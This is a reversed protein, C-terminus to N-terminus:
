IFDDFTTEDPDEAPQTDFEAITKDFSDAELLESVTRSAFKQHFEEASESVPMRRLRGYKEYSAKAEKGVSSNWLVSEGELLPNVCGLELLQDFIAGRFSHYELIEPNMRQDGPERLLIWTFGDTVIGFETPSTRHRLYNRLEGIARRYHNLRKVECLVPEATNRIRLDVSGNYGEHYWETVYDYGVADCVPWVLYQSVFQEPDQGLESKGVEGKHGTLVTDIHGPVRDALEQCFSKLAAQVVTTFCNTRFYRIGQGILETIVNKHNQDTVDLTYIALLLGSGAFRDAQELSFVLEVPTRGAVVSLCRPHDDGCGSDV